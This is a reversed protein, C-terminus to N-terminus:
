PKKKMGKWKEHELAEPNAINDPIFHNFVDLVRDVASVAMEVVCERTLAASHPTLIVSHMKLLLNDRGPPENQFVDLGAGKIMGKELAEVLDDENVVGGRSANIVFAESRMKEFCRMNLLGKTNETLPVHVSIVDAKECVSHLDTFTVWERYKGKIRENLFPDYAIISMRFCSNCMRALTSGIRGFGILGLCKGHLDRPINRYRIGFNGKRLEADLLPLQKFLSLMMSVCHEVVSKTNVGISSTVLIGRETASKLDVNDVGAGTRSITLLRDAERLLEETVKVGTRLVIAHAKKMLPLITSVDTDPAKIVDMGNQVLVNLASEEIPQPLLVNRTKDMGCESKSRERDSGCM